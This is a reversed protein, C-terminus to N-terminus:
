EFLDAHTGTRTFYINEGDLKYILLWDGEIHCDRFGAFDGQLKHDRYQAPLQQGKILLAMVEKLKNPDKGRRKQLTVDKDFKTTYFVQRM